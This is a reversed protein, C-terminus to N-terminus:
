MLVKEAMDSMIDYWSSDMAQAARIVKEHLSKKVKDVANAYDAQSYEASGSDRNKVMIELKEMLQKVHFNPDLEQNPQDPQAM